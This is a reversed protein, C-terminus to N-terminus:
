RRGGIRTRGRLVVVGALMALVVAVALSAIVVARHDRESFDIPEPEPVGLHSALFPMMENWVASTYASAHASGRVTHLKVDVGHRVLADHLSRAQSLPVLENDANAIFTPPTAQTVQELASAARYRQPCQSPLCGLFEEVLPMSWVQECQTNGACGPPAGSGDSALAALDTPASWVALARVGSTGDAAALAALHGGASMGVMALHNRDVGYRDANTVTWGLAQRVADVETPWAGGTTGLVATTPYDINFVTWGQSAALTARESEEARTGGAWAGGHVIVLGPHGPAPEAPRWVDLVRTSDGPMGYAVEREVTVMEGGAQVVTTAPQAGAAAAACSATVLMALLATLPRHLSGSM